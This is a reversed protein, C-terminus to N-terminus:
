RPYLFMITVTSTSVLVVSTVGNFFLLSVYICCPYVVRRLLILAVHMVGFHWIRSVSHESLM